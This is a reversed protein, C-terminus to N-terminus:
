KIRHNIARQKISQSGISLLNLNNTSANFIFVVNVAISRPLVDNIDHTKNNKEDMAINHKVSHM